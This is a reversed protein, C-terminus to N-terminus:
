YSVEFGHDVQESAFEIEHEWNLDNNGVGFPSSGNKAKIKKATVIPYGSGQIKEKGFM